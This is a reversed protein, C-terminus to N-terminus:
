PLGMKRLFKRITKGVESMLETYLEENPDQGWLNPCGNRRAGDELEAISRKGFRGMRMIEIRNYRSIQDLTRLGHKECLAATRPSLGLDITKVKRWDNM